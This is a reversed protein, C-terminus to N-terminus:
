GEEVVCKANRKGESLVEAAKIRKRISYSHYTYKIMQHYNGKAKLGLVHCCLSTVYLMEQVGPIIKRVEMTSFYDLKWISTQALGGELM